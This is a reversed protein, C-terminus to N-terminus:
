WLKNGDKLCSGMTVRDCDQQTIILARKKLFCLSCIAAQGENQYLLSAGQKLAAVTDRGQINLLCFHNRLTPFLALRDKVLFLMHM